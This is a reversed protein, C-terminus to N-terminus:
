NGSGDGSEEETGSDETESDETENEDEDAPVEFVGNLLFNAVSRAMEIDNNSFIHGVQNTDLTFKSQDQFTSVADVISDRPIRSDGNSWLIGSREPFNQVASWSWPSLDDTSLGEETIFVRDGM